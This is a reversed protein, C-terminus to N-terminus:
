FRAVRGLLAEGYARTFGSSTLQLSFLVEADAAMMRLGFAFSPEFSREHRPDRMKQGLQSDKSVVQVGHLTEDSDQECNNHRDGGDL